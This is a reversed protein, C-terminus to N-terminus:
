AVQGALQLAVRAALRAVAGQARKHWQTAKALAIPPSEFNTSSSPPGRRITGAAGRIRGSTPGSSYILFGTATM